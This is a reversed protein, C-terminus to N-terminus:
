VASAPWVPLNTSLHLHCGAADALRGHLVRNLEEACEWSQALCSCWGKLIYMHVWQAVVGFRM